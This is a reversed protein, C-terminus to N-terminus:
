THLQKHTASHIQRLQSSSTMSAEKEPWHGGMYWSRCPRSHTARWRRLVMLSFTTRDEEEEEKIM